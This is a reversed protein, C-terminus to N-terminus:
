ATRAAFSRRDLRDALRRLSAALHQARATSRLRAVAAERCLADAREHVVVLVDLPHALFM